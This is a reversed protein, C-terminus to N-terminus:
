RATSETKGNIGRPQLKDKRNILQIYTGWPDRVILKENQYANRPSEGVLVAGNQVLREAERVTDGCEIAFHLQIFELGHLDLCPVEELKAFEIVTGQHDTIFAAGEEDTGMKRIFEFGLNAVWWEAMSIPHDICLGIHELKMNDKATSGFISFTIEQNESLDEAM